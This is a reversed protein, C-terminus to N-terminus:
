RAARAYARAAAMRQVTSPHSAFMAHEWHPPDPDALNVTGLRRQMAEFTEPDGTLDMAHADARAEVRRSVFAQAPGAILGAVTSLALLLGIARPDGISDVGALRLLGGWSGALYLAIVAAAAGLAGIITGTLVDNDKAHGLEHAAVSVVEDPTAETLMTDYVVIRRTPGLGSVYANVARTRRSADAVLVDRVPVGDREALELLETRLPGEPMPTFKNFIPEVLVPLVFSLLVVLGAVGAAGFAWWWRPAFHTVTFFGALVVGGLVAGVAYSKLMDGAWGGWSQTSIGYRVVVTHRWIAIPLTLLETVVVVLLGGLVARVLWHDGTLEVLRAGLPTLGLVLAAALGLLMALYRGPRLEAHFQRARAVKGADLRGLADLQDARPAPARHWPVKAAAFAALAALLVVLATVAWQRPTM